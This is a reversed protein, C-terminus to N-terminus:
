VKCDDPCFSIQFVSETKEIWRTLNVVGENGHFIKPRCNMFDKYTCTRATGVHGENRVGDRTVNSLAAVIRQAIIEELQVTSISPNIEPPPQPQQQPASPRNPNLRNSRRPM